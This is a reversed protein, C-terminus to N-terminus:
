QHHSPGTPDPSGVPLAMLTECFECKFVKATPRPKNPNQLLMAGGCKPCIRDDLKHVTSM